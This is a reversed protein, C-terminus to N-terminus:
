MIHHMSFIVIVAYFIFVCGAIAYEAPGAQHPAPNDATNDASPRYHTFSDMFYYNVTIPPLLQMIIGFKDLHLGLGKNRELLNQGDIWAQSTYIRTYINSVRYNSGIWNVISRALICHPCKKGQGWTSVQAYVNGEEEFCRFVVGNAKLSGLFTTRWNLGLKLQVEHYLCRNLFTGLVFHCSRDLTMTYLFKSYTASIYGTEDKWTKEWWIKHVGLTSSVPCTHIGTM